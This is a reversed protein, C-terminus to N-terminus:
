QIGLRGLGDLVHREPPLVSSDDICPLLTHSISLDDTAGNNSADQEDEKTADENAAPNSESVTCYFIFPWWGFVV